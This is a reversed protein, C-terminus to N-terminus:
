PKRKPDPCDILLFRALVVLKLTVPLGLGLVFLRDLSVLRSPSPTSAIAQSTRLSCNAGTASNYLQDIRQRTVDILLQDPCLVLTALLFEQHPGTPRYCPLVKIIAASEQEITTNRDNLRTTIRTRRRHKAQEVRLQHFASGAALAPSGLDSGSNLIPAPI